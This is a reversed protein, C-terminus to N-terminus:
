QNIDSIRLTIKTNYVLYHLGWSHVALAGVALSQLFLHLQCALPALLHEIATFNALLLVQVVVLLDTKAQIVYLLPM